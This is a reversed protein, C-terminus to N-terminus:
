RHHFDINLIIRSVLFFVSNYPRTVTIEYSLNENVMLEYTLETANSPNDFSDDKPSILKIAIGKEDTAVNGNKVWNNNSSKMDEPILNSTVTTVLLFSDRRWPQHGGSNIWEEYTMLTNLSIQGSEYDPLKEPAENLQLLNDVSYIIISQNAKMEINQESINSKVSKQKSYYCSILVVNIILISIFCFSVILIKKSKLM